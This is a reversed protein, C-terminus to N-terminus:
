GAFHMTCESIVVKWLDVEAQLNWASEVIDLQLWFCIWAAQVIIVSPGLYLYNWNEEMVM